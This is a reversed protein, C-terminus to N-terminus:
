MVKPAPTLTTMAFRGSDPGAGWTNQFAPPYMLMPAPALMKPVTM